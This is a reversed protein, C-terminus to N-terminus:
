SAVEAGQAVRAAIWRRLEGELDPLLSEPILRRGGVVPCRDDDFHTKYLFDSVSKPPLGLRRAVDRVTLVREM